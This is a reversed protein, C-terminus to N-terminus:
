RSRTPSSISAGCSGSVRTARMPKLSMVIDSLEQGAAITVRRAQAANDAGPYYMPAYAVREQNNNAPNNPRWTATLYYQGPAIGFLRFEGIDNTTGQRGTPVLRRQGQVFQYQQAGVQVDSLPEDFEDVIRGM